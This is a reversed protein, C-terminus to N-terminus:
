VNNSVVKERLIFVASDIKDILDETLDEQGYMKVTNFWGSKIGM